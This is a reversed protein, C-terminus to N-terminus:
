LQGEWVGQEAELAALCGSRSEARESPKLCQKGFLGGFGWGQGPRVPETM